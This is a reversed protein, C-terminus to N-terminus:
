ARQCLRREEKCERCRGKKTTQDDMKEVLNRVHLDIGFPVSFVGFGSSDKTMFGSPDSYRIDLYWTVFSCVAWLVFVVLIIFLTHM